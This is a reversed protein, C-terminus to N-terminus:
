WLLWKETVTMIIMYLLCIKENLKCKYYKYKEKIGRVTM